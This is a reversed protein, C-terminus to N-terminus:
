PTAQEFDPLRYALNAVFDADVQAAFAALLRAARTVDKLDAVEVPSHMNRLPLEVLGCPIGGATVEVAWADTGTNAPLPEIGHALELAEATAILKAAIVPHLNPGIGVVPGGGLPFSLDSDVGPQEGFTVDIVIALDPLLRFAATSAGLHNLEEGGNAIALIDCPHRMGQLKDLAALLTAVGLRNDLARGAVREGLLPILPAAPDGSQLLAVDGISIAAATEEPTLGLDIVLNEVSPMHKREASTLLHPPRDGIVGFLPQRGVMVEQGVLLRPDYGHQSFRLFSGEIATILLFIEDIHAMLALKPRPEPGQGQKWGLVTFLPDVEVQDCLPKMLDAVVMAVDEEQGSPGRAQLLQQLTSRLNM